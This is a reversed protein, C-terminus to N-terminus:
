SELIWCQVKKVKACDLVEKKSAHKEYFWDDIDLHNSPFESCGLKLFSVKENVNLFSVKENVNLFSASIKLIISDIAHKKNFLFSKKKGLVSVNKVKERNRYLFNILIKKTFM